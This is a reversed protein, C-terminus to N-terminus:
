TNQRGQAKKLADLINAMTGFCLNTQIESETAQRLEVFEHYEHDLKSPGWKIVGEFLDPLGIQEAIFWTKDILYSLLLNKCKEDAEGELLVFDCSKFNGGDRYQYELICYTINTTNM